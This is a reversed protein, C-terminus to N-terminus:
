RFVYGFTLPKFTKGHEKAIRRGIANMNDLLPTVEAKAEDLKIYGNQYMARIHEIKARYEM